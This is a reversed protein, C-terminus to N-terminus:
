YVIIYNKDSIIQEGKVGPLDNAEALNRLSTGFRKAVDWLREGNTPYYVTIGSRPASSHGSCQVSEAIRVTQEQTISYPMFIDVEISANTGELRCRCDTVSPIGFLTLKEEDFSLATDLSFPLTTEESFYEDGAKSIIRIKCNGSIILDNGDLTLGEARATAHSDIIESEESLSLDNIPISCTVTLTANACKKLTEFRFDRYEANTEKGPIYIDQTVSIPINKAKEAELIVETDLLLKNAGLSIKTEGSIGRINVSSNGLSETNDAEIEQSFPIRKKAQHLDGNESNEYLIEAIVEGRCNLRGGSESTDGISVNSQASIVRINETPIDTPIEDSLEIVESMQRQIKMSSVDNILREANGDCGKLDSCIDDYGYARVMAHLRCKVNLKRPATVRCHLMDTEVDAFADNSSNWDIHTPVEPQVDFSFDAGLPVSSLKGDGGVYIIDYDVRGSFEIGSGGIYRSIPSIKANIGLMKRIEPLYDPLTYDSSLETTVNKKFFNVQARETEPTLLFETPKGMHETNNNEM